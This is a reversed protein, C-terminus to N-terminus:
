APTCPPTPRPRRGGCPHAPVARPAPGVVRGPAGGAARGALATRQVVVFAPRVPLRCRPPRALGPPARGPGRGVSHRDGGLHSRAHQPQRRHAAGLPGSRAACRREAAVGGAGPRRRGEGRERHAPAGAGGVRQHRDPDPQLGGRSGPGSYGPGSRLLVPQHHRPGAARADHIPGVHALPRRHEAPLGARRRRGAGARSHRRQRPRPPLHSAVGHLHLGRLRQGRRPDDGHGGQECRQSAATPAAACQVNTCANADLLGRLTRCVHGTRRQHQLTNHSGRLLRHRDGGIRVLGRDRRDREVGVGRGVPM